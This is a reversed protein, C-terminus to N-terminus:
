GPGDDDTNAREVEASQGRGHHARASTGAAEVQEPGRGWWVSVAYILLRIASSSPEMPSWQCREGLEVGYGGCRDPIHEVV